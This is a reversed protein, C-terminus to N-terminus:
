DKFPKLNSLDRDSKGRSGTDSIASYCCKSATRAKVTAVLLSPAISLAPVCRFGNELVSALNSTYRKINYGKYLIRVWAGLYNDILRGEM